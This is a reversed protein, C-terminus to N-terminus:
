RDCFSQCASVQREDVGAACPFVEVRRHRCQTLWGRFWEAFSSPAGMVLLVISIAILTAGIPKGLDQFVRRDSRESDAYEALLGSQYDVQAQLSAIASAVASPGLTGSPEASPTASPLSSPSSSSSSSSTTYIASHLRFLQTVAVGVSAM